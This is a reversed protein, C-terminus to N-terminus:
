ELSNIQSSFDAGLIFIDVVSVLLPVYNKNLHRQVVDLGGGKFLKACYQVVVLIDERKRKSNIGNFYMIKM